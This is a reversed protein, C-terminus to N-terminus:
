KFNTHMKVLSNIISRVEDREKEYSLILYILHLEDVSFDISYKIKSTFGLKEYKHIEEIYFNKLKDHNIM